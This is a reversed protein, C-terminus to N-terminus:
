HDSAVVIRVHVFLYYCCSLIHIQKFLNITIFYIYNNICYYENNNYSYIYKNYLLNIIIIYISIMFNSGYEIRVTSDPDLLNLTLDTPYM